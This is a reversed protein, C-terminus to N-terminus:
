DEEGKEEGPSTHFCFCQYNTMDKETSHSPALLYDQIVLAPIHLIVLWLQRPTPHPPIHRDRMAILLVISLTTPTYLCSLIHFCAIRNSKLKLKFLIFLHLYTCISTPMQHNLAPRDFQRGEHRIHGTCAIAVGVGCLCFVWGLTDRYPKCHSWTQCGQNLTQYGTYSEGPLFLPRHNKSTPNLWRGMGWCDHKSSSNRFTPFDEM